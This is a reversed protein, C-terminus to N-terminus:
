RVSAVPVLTLSQATPHSLLRHRVADWRLPRLPPVSPLRSLERHFGTLARFHRPYHGPDVALLRGTQRACTLATWWEGIGPLGISEVGHPFLTLAIDDYPATDSLYGALRDLSPRTGFLAWYPVLGTRISLAPDMILFSTVLLRDASRGNEAYWGRFLESVPASADEPQNFRLREVAMGLEAAVGAVEEALPEAFGWEAERAPAPLDLPDLVHPGRM